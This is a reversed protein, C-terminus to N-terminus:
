YVGYKMPLPLKTPLLLARIESGKFIVYRIEKYIIKMKKNLSSFHQIFYIQQLYIKKKHIYIKDM